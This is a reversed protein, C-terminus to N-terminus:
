VFGIADVPDRRTGDDRAVQEVAQHQGLVALVHLGYKGRRDFAVAGELVFIADHPGVAGDPPDPNHSAATETWVAEGDAQGADDEIDGVRVTLLFQQALRFRPQLLRERRHAGSRPLVVEVRPVAEPGVFVEPQEPQLRSRDLRRVLGEEGAQMGVIPRSVHRHLLRRDVARSRELAVVAHHPRVAGDAPHVAGADDDAVGAARRQLHGADGHVDGCAAVGFVFDARRALAGRAPALHLLGHGANQGACGRDIHGRDRDQLREAVQEAFIDACQPEHVGVGVHQAARRDPM